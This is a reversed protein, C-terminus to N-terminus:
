TAVEDDAISVAGIYARDIICLRLRTQKESRFETVDKLKLWGLAAHDLIGEYTLNNNRTTVIVRQGRLFAFPGEGKPTEAPKKISLTNSM